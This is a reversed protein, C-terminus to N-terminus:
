YSDLLRYFDSSLPLYLLFIPFLSVSAPVISILFFDLLLFINLGKSYSFARLLKSLGYAASSSDGLKPELFDLKLVFLNLVDDYVLAM